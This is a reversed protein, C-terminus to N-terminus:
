VQIFDETVDNFPVRGPLPPQDPALTSGDAAAFHLSPEVSEGDEFIFDSESAAPPDVEQLPFRPTLPWVSKEPHHLSDFWTISASAYLM